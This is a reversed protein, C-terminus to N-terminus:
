PSSAPWSPLTTAAPMGRLGMAGGTPEFNLFFVRVIEGFAMTMLVLYIGQVRLAPLGVIAGVCAAAVIAAAFGVPWPWRLTATIWASTYAGLWSAAQGLSLQGASLPFYLSLALV